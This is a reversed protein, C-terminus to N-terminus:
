SIKRVIKNQQINLSKIVNKYTDYCIIIDYQFSSQYLFLYVIRM